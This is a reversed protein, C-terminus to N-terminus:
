DEISIPFKGTIGALLDAVHKEDEQLEIGNGQLMLVGSISTVGGVGGGEGVRPDLTRQLGYDVAGVEGGEWCQAVHRVGGEEGELCGLLAFGVRRGRWQRCVGVCGACGVCLDCSYKGGGCRGELRQDVVVDGGEELLRWRRRGVVVLSVM